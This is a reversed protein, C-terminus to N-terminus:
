RRCTSRWGPPARASRRGTRPLGEDRSRCARSTPSSPRARALRDVGVAEEDDAGVHEAAAHARGAGGADVGVGALGPADVKGDDGDAVHDVRLHRQDIVEADLLQEAHDAARHAAHLHQFPGRAVAVAHERGHRDGGRGPVGRLVDGEVLDAPLGHHGIGVPRLAAVEIEADLRAVAQGHRAHGGVDGVQRLLRQLSLEAARRCSRAAM